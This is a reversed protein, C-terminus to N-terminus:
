KEEKFDPALPVRPKGGGGINDPASNTIVHLLCVLTGVDHFYDWQSDLYNDHVFGKMRFNYKAETERKVGYEASFAYAPWSTNDTVYCGYDQLARFLKKGVKTRLGVSDIDVEPPIALLSGMVVEPNTGCYREGIETNQYDNYACSDCRDAPWRCGRINEDFYSYEGCLINLKLAHRIPEDNILEGIRLSGGISSLGSGWHTGPIGDGYIDVNVRRDYGVIYKSDYYLRCTPQMQVITRGDPQLIACCENGSVRGVVMGKPWYMYRGTHILDKEEPWRGAGPAANCIELYDDDVTTTFVLEEDISFAPEPLLNAPEYIAKDGIPTNWISHRDFPWLWVDRTGEYVEYGTKEDLKIKDM